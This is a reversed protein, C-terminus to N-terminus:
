ASGDSPPDPSDDADADDSADEADEAGAFFEAPVPADAGSGLGDGRTDTPAFLFLSFAASFAAWFAAWFATSFSV